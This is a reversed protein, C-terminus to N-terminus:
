IDPCPDARHKVQVAGTTDIGLSGGGHGNCCTYCFMWDNKMGAAGGVLGRVTSSIITLQGEGNASVGIADGGRGESNVDADGGTINEIVSNFLTVSFTGSIRLGIANLGNTYVPTGRAGHLGSIITNSLM